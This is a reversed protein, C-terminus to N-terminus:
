QGIYTQRRSEFADLYYSGLTGADVSSAAGLRIRQIRRTDNNLGSLSGKLAGDIWFNIGGNNAGAGSAAWWELEVAHPADSITTWATSVTANANDQQRLRMQYTGTSYRFDVNFVATSLSSGDYGIMLYHANGDTMAISNPDFYFRARYHPEATALDYTAYISSTSSINVLMGYNGVLAAQSSVSVSGSSSTWASLNGSEFGDKFILDTVASTPTATFTATPTPTNTSTPTDTPTNTPTATPGATPTSTATFTATATSTMTPTRTNTPTGTNTSTSTPTNTVIPTNTRTPTNTPTSTVTPTFTSTPSVSPTATSISAPSLYNFADVDNSALNWTSGDFYLTSSYNCATVSGISTPACVFVDEDAGSVGNVAFDGLTSLYIKGDPAVDAADVDENSSDALGVDSGDFYM